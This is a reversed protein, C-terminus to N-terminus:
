PKVALLLVPAIAGKAINGAMNAAKLGADQGMVLHLGLPPPGSEAMRAKMKTFFEQALEKKPAESTVTLGATEIAARYASIPEVFSTTDDQAWAVPYDLPQDGIRMVDYAALRGGPKLVRAIESFLLAKNQINMGVHFLTVRDFSADAKPLDLASGEVLGVKDALGVDRTLETGVTVYEPTLDVGEVIAGYTAAMFRAAGGLGCGVDLVKLGPSLDLQECVMKTAPRGGIHFEDVGALLDIAADDSIDRMKAWGAAIAAQLGGKTYHHAVKAETTTM